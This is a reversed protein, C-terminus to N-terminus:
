RGIKQNLIKIAFSNYLYMFFPIPDSWSFLAPSITKKGIMSKFLIGLVSGRREALINVVVAELWIFYYHKSYNSKYTDNVFSEGKLESFYKNAALNNGQKAALQSWFWNRTNHEIFYYQGNVQHKKFEIQFIGTFSLHHLLKNGIAVIEPVLETQAMSAMGRLHPKQTLKRGTFPYYVKGKYAYGGYTYLTDDDGPIYESVMASTEGEICEKLLKKVVGPDETIKAKFLSKTEERFSPKIMWPGQLNEIKSFDDISEMQITKPYLIGLREVLELQFDKDIINPDDWLISFNSLQDRHDILLKFNRDNTPFPIIKKSLSNLQILIPLIEETNAYEIKEYIYKSYGGSSQRQCLCVIKIEPYIALSRMIGLANIFGSMVLAINQDKLRSIQQNSIM